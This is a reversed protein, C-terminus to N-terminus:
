VPKFEKFGNIEFSRIHSKSRKELIWDCIIIFSLQESESTINYSAYEPFYSEIKFRGELIKQRLLDQKNLFVIISVNKLWRYHSIM